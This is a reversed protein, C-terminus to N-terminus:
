GRDRVIEARREGGDHARGPRQVIEFALQVLLRLAFEQPEIWSSDSRRLRKM